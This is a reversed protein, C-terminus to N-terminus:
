EPVLFADLVPAGQADHGLTTGCDAMLSQEIVQPSRVLTHAVAVPQGNAALWGEVVAGGAQAVHTRDGTVLYLGHTAVGAGEHDLIRQLTGQITGHYGLDVVAVRRPRDPGLVAAVHALLNRRATASARVVKGRASPDRAIRHVLARAREPTLDARADLGPLDAPALGLQDLLETCPPQSPRLVFSELEAESGAFIAARLVAFRSLFLERTRLEPAQADLVQKLIRGERMLCLVETVGLEGCREAVWDCFGSIV